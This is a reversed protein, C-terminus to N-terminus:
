SHYVDDERKLSSYWSTKRSCKVEKDVFNFHHKYFIHVPAPDHISLMASGDMLGFLEAQKTHITASRALINQILKAKVNAHKVNYMVCIDKLTKVTIKQLDPALYLPM